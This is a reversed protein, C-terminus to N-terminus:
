VQWVAIVARWETPRVQWLRNKEVAAAVKKVVPCPPDAVTVGCDCPPCVGRNATTVMHDLDVQDSVQCWQCPVLPEDDSTVQVSADHSCAKGCCGDHDSTMADRECTEASGCYAMAHSAIPLYFGIVTLLLSAMIRRTLMGTYYRCRGVICAM